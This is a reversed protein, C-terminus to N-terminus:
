DQLRELARRFAGKDMGGSVVGKIAPDLSTLSDVVIYCPFGPVNLDPYQALLVHRYDAYADIDDVCVDVLKMGLEAAVVGDYKGMRHCTGCEPDSFKVIEPAM